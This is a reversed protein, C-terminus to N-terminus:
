VNSESRWEWKVMSGDMCSCDISLSVLDRRFERGIKEGVDSEDELMVDRILPMCIRRAERVRLMVEWRGGQLVRVVRFLVQVVFIVAEMLWITWEVGEGGGVVLDGSSEGVFKAVRRGRRIACV